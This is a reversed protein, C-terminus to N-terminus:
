EAALLVGTTVENRAARDRGAAIAWWEGLLRRDEKSFRARLKLDEFTDEPHCREYDARILADLREQELQDGIGQFMPRALMM